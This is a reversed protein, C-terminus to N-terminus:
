SPPFNDRFTFNPINMFGSTLLNLKSYSFCCAPLLVNYACILIPRGATRPRASINKRNEKRISSCRQFGTLDVAPCPSLFCVNPVEQVPLLWGHWGRCSLSGEGINWRACKVPPQGSEQRRQKEREIDSTGIKLHSGPVGLLPKVASSRWPM